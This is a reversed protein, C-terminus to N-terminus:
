AGGLSLAGGSRTLVVSLFRLPQQPAVAVEIVLEGRDRNSGPAAIMIRWSDGGGRGALAGRRFLDDAMQSLRRDLTRELTDGWAEFVLQQGLRLVHRRLLMILRRSSHFRWDAEPSLSFLDAAIFGDPAAKILNIGALAFRDQTDAPLAPLLAVIDPLPQGAQGMWAGVTAAARALGG